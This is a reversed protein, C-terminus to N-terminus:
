LVIDEVLGQYTKDGIGKVNKLEELSRFGGHASRYDIIAQAKVEGIGPLRMLTELDAQNISIRGDSEVVTEPSSREKEGDALAPVVIKQGDTLIAARNLADIAADSRVGALHLADEVRKGEELEYVGAHEVAGAVHVFITATQVSSAAEDGAVPASVTGIIEVAEEAAQWAEYKTGGWFSLLMIALLGCALWRRDIM